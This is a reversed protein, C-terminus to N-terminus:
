FNSNQIIKKTNKKHKEWILIHNGDEIERACRACGTCVTSGPYQNEINENKTNLPRPLM